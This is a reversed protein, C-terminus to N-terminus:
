CAPVTSSCSCAPNRQLTAGAATRSTPPAPAVTARIETQPEGPQGWLVTVETGPPHQAGRRHIVVVFGEQVMQQLGPADCSRDKPRRQRDLRDVGFGVPERAPGAAPLRAGEGYLSAHIRKMDDSNFELTM